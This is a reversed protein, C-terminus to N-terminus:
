AQQAPASSPGSAAELAAIKAKLAEIDAQRAALDAAAQDIIADKRALDDQLVAVEGSAEKAAAEAKRAKQRELEAKPAAEAIGGAIWGLGDSEPVEAIEGPHHEFNPGAISTLMRVTILKVDDTM